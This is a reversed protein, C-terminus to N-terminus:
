GFMHFSLSFDNQGGVAFGVNETVAKATWSGGMPLLFPRQKNHIWSCSSYFIKALMRPALHRLLIASCDWASNTCRWGGKRAVAVEPVSMLMAWKRGGRFCADSGLWQMGSFDGSRLLVSVVLKKWAGCWACWVSCVSHAVSTCSLLNVAYLLQELNELTNDGDGAAKGLM